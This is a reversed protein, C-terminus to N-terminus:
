SSMRYMLVINYCRNFPPGSNFLFEYIVFRPAYAGIPLLSLDVPGHKEGISKFIDCYGTDGSHYVTKGRSKIIWGGWLRTNEDSSPSYSNLSVNGRLCWHQAPVFEVEVNGERGGGRGGSQIDVCESQWWNFAIQNPDEIISQLWKDTGLPLCWKIAAGFRKHLAVVTLRDLHDYHDHSVCVIDIPPLEAVTTPCRRYRKQGLWSVFYTTPGICNSFVPDFLINVGNMQVLYTAHGLWTAQITNPNPNQITQHDVKLIRMEEVEDM